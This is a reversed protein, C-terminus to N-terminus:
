LKKEVATAANEAATEASTIAGAVSSGIGKAVASKAATTEKVFYSKIKAGVAPTFAGIVFGAGGFIIENFTM